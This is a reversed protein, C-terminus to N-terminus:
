QELAVHRSIVSQTVPKALGGFAGFPILVYILWESTCFAIAYQVSATVMLSAVIARHEGLWSAIRRILFGQVIVGM